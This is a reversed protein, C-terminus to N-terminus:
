GQSSPGDAVRSLAQSTRTSLSKIQVMLATVDEWKSHNTALELGLLMASLQTASVNRALGLLRGSVLRVKEWEAREVAASLEEVFGPVDRLFDSRYRALDQSSKTSRMHQLLSPDILSPSSPVSVSILPSVELAAALAKIEIPKSLYDDMGAAICKERDGPLANATAGIIRPRVRRPYISCLETALQYGDMRPMNVDLLVARYRQTKIAELAELGDVVSDAQYGLKTLMKLMVKRNVPNDEVLLVRSAIPLQFSDSLERRERALSSEAAFFGALSTRRLPKNMGMECGAEEAIAKREQTGAPLVLVCRLGPILAKLQSVLSPGGAGLIAQDILVM